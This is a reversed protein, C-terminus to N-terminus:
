CVRPANGMAINVRPVFAGRRRMRIRNRTGNTWVFAHPEFIRGRRPPLAYLGGLSLHAAYTRHEVPLLVQDEAHLLVSLVGQYFHDGEERLAAELWDHGGPAQRRRPARTQQTRWAV